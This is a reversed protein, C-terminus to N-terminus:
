KKGRLTERIAVLLAEPTFPKQLFHTIGTEAMFSKVNPDFFGSMLIMLVRDDIAKMRKFLEGGDLKPMGFDSIVLDIGSRQECFVNFGESGDAAAVVRYGRSKLVTTMYERLNAEDEILLITETGGAPAAEPAQALAPRDGATRAPLYVTFASGQGPQSEVDIFGKHKHVIGYVLALGLGTGSNKGKTTFFPEFVRQRVSEEMGTGTDAIRVFAYEEGETEPYRAALSRRDVHGGAVTLTGGGPMADRANVFLNLFAQHLQDADATVLPISGDLDNHIAITKPFTERVLTVVEGVTESLRVPDLRPETKRAFTLLQKVLTVGREAATQIVNVQRALGARDDGAEGLLSLYGLIISLINNFDHAIGGALTGLSELKQAQALREELRRRDTEDILFGVIGDLAKNSNFVGYANVRMFGVSGDRRTLEMEYHEVNRGASLLRLIGECQGPQRCFQFFNYKLAEAPSHFGLVSAFVKNCSTIRGDAAAIFDGAPDNDFLSRYQEESKRLAEEALKRETIDRVIGELASLAGDVDRLRVTKQEVWVVAGDKRIWRLVVSFKGEARDASIKELLSRDEPHILKLWLDPDAYFERPTYGTMRTAAPSVYTFGRRPTYDYRYIVDVANETLRRFREESEILAAQTEFHRRRSDKHRLAALLAPGLRKIHEKLIYDAAGSKLCNVATEENVSGTVILVPTFPSLERMIRLVALGDFDPLSYDSVIADPIFEDLAKTFSEPTLVRLFLCAPLVKKVERENIDADAESDEVILIRIREVMTDRKSAPVPGQGDTM